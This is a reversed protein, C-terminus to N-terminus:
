VAAVLRNATFGCFGGCTEGGSLLKKKSNPLTSERELLALKRGIGWRYGALHGHARIVRHCPVVLAVPNAACARAVARAASPRGIARAIESYTRTAGCPIRRLEEWVRQQFATAPVDAPLDLHPEHGRLHALIKEVCGALNSSGHAVRCIRARPYEMRLAAELRADSEGLYVASAGRATAAFLLRGLPSAVITYDILMGVGGRLCAAPTAGLHAVARRNLRDRSASRINFLATAV